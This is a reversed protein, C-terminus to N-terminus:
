PFIEQLKGCAKLTDLKRQHAKAVSPPMKAMAEYAISLRERYVSENHKAKRMQNECDIAVASTIVFLCFFIGTSIELVTLIKTTMRKVKQCNTKHVAM